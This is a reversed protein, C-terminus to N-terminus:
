ALNEANVVSGSVNVLFRYLPVLVHESFGGDLSSLGPWKAFSCLQEDGSKCYICLGCGWGGFFSCGYGPKVKNKLYQNVPKKL